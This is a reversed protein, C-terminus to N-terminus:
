CLITMFFETRHLERCRSPLREGSSGLIKIELDFAKRVRVDDMPAKTTNINIYISAAEPADMWDKKDRVYAVWANLVTHNYLADVEGVKYLNLATSLDATPFFQIEDLHVNAADWYM